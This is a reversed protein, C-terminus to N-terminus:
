FMQAAAAIQRRSWAPIVRRILLRAGDGLRDSLGALACFAVSAGRPPEM